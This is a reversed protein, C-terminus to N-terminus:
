GELHCPMVFGALFAAGISISMCPWATLSKQCRQQGLSNGYLIAM